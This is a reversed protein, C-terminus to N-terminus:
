VVWTEHWQQFLCNFLNLENTRENEENKVLANAHPMFNEFHKTLFHLFYKQENHSELVYFAELLTFVFAQILVYMNKNGFRKELFMKMVLVYYISHRQSWFQIPSFKSPKKWAFNFSVLTTITEKDNKM